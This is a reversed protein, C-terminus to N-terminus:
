LLGLESQNQALAELCQPLVIPFSQAWVSPLWWVLVCRRSAAAHACIDVLSPEASEVEAVGIERNGHRCLLDSPGERPM